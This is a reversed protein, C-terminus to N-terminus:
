CSKKTSRRKCPFYGRINKVISSSWCPKKASVLVSTRMKEQYHRNWRWSEPPLLDGPAVTCGTSCKIEYCSVICLFLDSEVRQEARPTITPTVAAIGTTPPKVKV